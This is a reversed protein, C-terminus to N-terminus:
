VLHSNTFPSVFVYGCDVCVDCLILRGRCDDIDMCLDMCHETNDIFDLSKLTTSCNGEYGNFSFIEFEPCGSFVIVINFWCHRNTLSIACYNLIQFGDNIDNDTYSLLKIPHLTHLWPSIIATWDSKAAFYNNLRFKVFPLASTANWCWIVCKVLWM